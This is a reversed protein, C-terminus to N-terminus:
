RLTRSVISSAVLESSEPDVGPHRDRRKRNNYTWSHCASEGHWTLHTCIVHIGAYFVIKWAGLPVQTTVIDQDIEFPSQNPLYNLLRVFSIQYAFGLRNHDGRRRSIEKLDNDNLSGHQILQSKPYSIKM